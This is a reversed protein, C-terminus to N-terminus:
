SCNLGFFFFFFLISNETKDLYLDIYLNSCIEGFTFCGPDAACKEKRCIERNWKCINQWIDGSEVVSDSVKTM